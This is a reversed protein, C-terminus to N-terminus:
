MYCVTCVANQLDGNALRTGTCSQCSLMQVGPPPAPTPPVYPPYTTSTSCPTVVPMLYGNSDDYCIIAGSKLGSKVRLSNIAIIPKNM